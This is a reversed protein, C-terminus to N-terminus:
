RAHTPAGACPAKGHPHTTSSRDRPGKVRWQRCTHMPTCHLHTTWSGKGAPTNHVFPWGHGQGHPHTTCARCVHGSALSATCRMPGKRVGAHTRTSSRTRGTPPSRHLTSRLSVLVFTHAPEPKAALRSVFPNTRMPPAGQPIRRPKSREQLGAQESQQGFGHSGTSGVRAVEQHLDAPPHARHVPCAPRGAAGHVLAARARVKSGEAGHSPGLPLPLQLPPDHALGPAPEQRAEVLEGAAFPPAGEPLHLRGGM